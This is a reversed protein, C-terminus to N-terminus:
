IDKVMSMLPSVSLVGMRESFKKLLLLEFELKPENLSDVIRKALLEQHYLMFSDISSVSNL